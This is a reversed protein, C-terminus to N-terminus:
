DSLLRGTLERRVKKDKRKRSSGADSDSNSNSDSSSGSRPPTVPPAVGGRKEEVRARLQSVDPLDTLMQYRASAGM